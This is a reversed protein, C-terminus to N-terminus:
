ARLYRNGAETIKVWNEPDVLDDYTAQVYGNRKLEEFIRAARAREDQTFEVGMRTEITGRQFAGRGILNMKHAKDPGGVSSSSLAELLAREFIRDSFREM